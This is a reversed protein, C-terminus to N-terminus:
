AELQMGSLTAQREDMVGRIAAYKGSKDDKALQQIGNLAMGIDTLIEAEAKASRIFSYVFSFFSNQRQQVRTGIERELNTLERCTEGLYEPNRSDLQVFVADVRDKLNKEISKSKYDFLSQNVLARVQEVAGLPNLMGVATNHKVQLKEAKKTEVFSQLYQNVENLGRYKQYRSVISDMRNSSERDLQCLVSYLSAIRSHVEAKDKPLKEVKETKNEIVTIQKLYDDRKDSDIVAAAARKAVKLYHEYKKYLEDMDPDFLCIYKAAFYDSRCRGKNLDNKIIIQNLDDYINDSFERLEGDKRADVLIKTVQGYLYNTLYRQQEERNDVAVLQEYWKKYVPLKVHRPIYHLDYPYKPNRPQLLHELFCYLEDLLAKMEHILHWRKGGQRKLDQQNLTAEFETIIGKLLQMNLSTDQDPKFTSPRREPVSAIFQFARSALEIGAMVM